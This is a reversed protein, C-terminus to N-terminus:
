FSTFFCSRSGTHCAVGVQEVKYIFAKSQISYQISMVKQIHGSEEGKIWLKNRSRSFYTGRKEKFSYKLSESNSWAMMLLYNNEDLTLVPVLQNEKVFEPLDGSWEIYPNFQFSDFTILYADADCDQFTILESKQPPFSKLICDIKSRDVSQYIWTIKNKELEM